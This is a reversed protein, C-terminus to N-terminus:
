LFIAKELEEELDKLRKKSKEIEKLLHDKRNLVESWCTGDCACTIDICYGCYNYSGYEKSWDIM